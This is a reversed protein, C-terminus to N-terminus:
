LKAELSAKIHDYWEERLISLVASDRRTGDNRCTDQRLVGEFTCGISKMATISVENTNDARFEVREMELVDFAYSLMLYKCHKNIGTGRYAKGYWTYGLMLTKQTYNINYFRTSGVYVEADKDFVIFPMATGKERDTIAQAIYQELNEKGAASVFSYKWIEPENLSYPLLEDIDYTELPKLIIREDNIVIYQM